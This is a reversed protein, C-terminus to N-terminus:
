RRTRQRAAAAAMVRAPLAEAASPTVDARRYAGPSVQAWKHFARHFASPENFGVARAIDQVSKSTSSLYTIALDRRLDDKISQYSQGEAKLRRRLTAPATHFERAIRELGPLDGPLIQRLRRRVRAALGETNKYKLLISDPTVRLFEKVSAADQVIPLALLRPDFEIFTHTCDFETVVSFLMLYELAHAPRPYAFGARAIPIRRGVLWCALGHVIVLLTEHAFARSNGGTRRDLLNIRARGDTVALEIALDDLFVRLFRGTQDIAAKLNTCHVVSRCLLAFSGAKMRRTDQLFFEDDLREIFLRWLASYQQASVRSQELELLAPAIGAEQLFAPADIGRGTLAAVVPRVFQISVTGKEAPDGAHARPPAPRQPARHSKRDRM